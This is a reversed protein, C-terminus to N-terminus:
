LLPIDFIKQLKVITEYWPNEAGIRPGQWSTADPLDQVENVCKIGSGGAAEWTRLNHSYDDILYDQKTLQRNLFTTAEKPKNAPSACFITEYQETNPFKRKLWQRKEEIGTKNEPPVASHFILRINPNNLLEKILIIMDSYSNLQLFFNSEYMAELCNAHEYFRAITGDMDMFLTITPKKM